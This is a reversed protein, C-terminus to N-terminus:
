LPQTLCSDVEEVHINKEALYALVRSRNIGNPSDPIQIVMRGFAEGDINRTDAALINVPTKCEMVM